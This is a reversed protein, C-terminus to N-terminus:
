SNTERAIEQPTAGGNPSQPAAKGAGPGAVEGDQSMQILVDLIKPNAKIIPLIVDIIQKDEPAPEMIEDINEMNLREMVQKLIVTMNGGAQQVMPLIINLANIFQAREIDRRMALDNLAIDVAYSKELTEETQNKFFDSIAVDFLIVQDKGYKFYLIVVFNIFELIDDYANKAMMGFKFMAQNTISEIGSATETVGRGASTGMVYDVAGTVQQIDSVIESGMISAERSKDPIPFLDIDSPDGSYGIANGPAAFLEDFEIDADRRYKFLLNINTKFNQLRLSRVQNLEYQMNKVLQPVSKGILSKSQRMPRVPFLLKKKQTKMENTQVSVLVQRNALTFIVDKYEPKNKNKSINYVGYWELIEVDDITDVDTNMDPDDYSINGGKQRVKEDEYEQDPLSTKKVEDHNFYNKNELVKYKKVRKRIFADTDEIDVAKLDFWVDYWGFINLKISKLKGNELIPQPQLWSVREVLSEELFDRAKYKLKIEDLVQQLWRQLSKEIKKYNPDEVYIRLYNDTGFLTEMLRAVMTQVVTYIYPITITEEWDEKDEIYQDKDNYLDIEEKVKNDYETRLDKLVQFRNILFAQIKEKQEKSLKDKLDM